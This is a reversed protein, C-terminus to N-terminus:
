KKAAPADAEATQADKAPLAADVVKVPAGPALRQFGDTIVQDGSNLGETIIWDQEVWDGVVVPRVEAAGQNNVLYVVHGNSTQQVARQPVVMANPRTAGKLTAKVFM